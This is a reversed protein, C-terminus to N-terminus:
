PTVEPAGTPTATPPRYDGVPVLQNLNVTRAMVQNGAEVWALWTVRSNQAQATVSRWASRAGTVVPVSGPLGTPPWAGGLTAVSAYHTSAGQAFNADACCTWLTILRQAAPDYAPAAWQLFVGDDNPDHGRYAIPLTAGWTRGGDLSTLSYAGTTAAGVWTFTIGTQGNPLGFVVGQPHYPREGTDGAPVTITRETITWGDADALPKQLLYLKANQHGLAGFRLAVAQAADGDGVIVVTGEAGYWSPIDMRAPPQWIGNPQRVIIAPIAHDTGPAFCNATVVVWGSASTAMADAVWCDEAIPQPTRWTAGYDDSQTAWLRAPQGGTADSAGFVAHVTHDGTIGLVTSGFRDQGNSAAGVDIQQAVGWQRTQPNWVRIFSQLPQASEDFRQTIALAAWGETPHTALALTYTHGPLQFVTQLDSGGQLLSPERTPYPPQSPVPTPFPILTPDTPGPTCRPYPTTTPLATPTASAAAPAGPPATALPTVTQPPPTALNGPWCGAVVATAQADRYTLGAGCATLLMSSMLLPIRFLAKV